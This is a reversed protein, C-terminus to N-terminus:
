TGALHKAIEHVKSKSESNAASYGTISTVQSCSDRKWGEIVKLRFIRRRRFLIRWLMQHPLRIQFM